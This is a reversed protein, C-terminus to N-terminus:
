NNKTQHVLQKDLRPIFYLIIPAKVWIYKEAGFGGRWGMINLKQFFFFGIELGKRSAKVRHSSNKSSVEGAPSKM